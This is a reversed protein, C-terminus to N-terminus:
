MTLVGKTEKADKAAHVEAVVVYVKGVIRYKRICQPDVVRERVGFASRPSVWLSLMVSEQVIAYPTKQTFIERHSPDHFGVSCLTSRRAGCTHQFM